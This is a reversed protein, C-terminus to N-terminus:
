GAGRPRKERLFLVYIENLAAIHRRLFSVANGVRGTGTPTAVHSLEAAPTHLCALAGSMKKTNARIEGVM